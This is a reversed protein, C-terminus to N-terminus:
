ENTKKIKSVWRRLVSRMINRKKANKSLQRSSYLIAFRRMNNNHVAINRMRHEVNKITSPYLVLNANLLRMVQQPTMRAAAVSTLTNRRPKTNRELKWKKM